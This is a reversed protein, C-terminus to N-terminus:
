PRCYTWAAHPPFVTKKFPLPVSLRGTCPCPWSDANRVKPNLVYTNVKQFNPDRHGEARLRTLAAQLLVHCQHFFHPTGVASDSSDSM